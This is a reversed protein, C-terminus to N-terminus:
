RAKKTYPRCHGPAPSWLSLIYSARLRSSSPYATTQASAHFIAPALFPLDSCDRRLREQCSDQRRRPLLLSRDDNNWAIVADVTAFRSDFLSPVRGPAAVSKTVVESSSRASLSFCPPVSGLPPALSSYFSSSERLFLSFTFSTSFPCYFSSLHVSLLLSFLSITGEQPLFPSSGGEM